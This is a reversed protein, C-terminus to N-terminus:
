AAVDTVSVPYFIAKAPPENGLMGVYCVPSLPAAGIFIRRSPASPTALCTICPMM